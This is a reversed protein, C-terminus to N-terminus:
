GGSGRSTTTSRTPCPPILVVRKAMLGRAWAPCTQGSPSNRGTGIGAHVRIDRAHFRVGNEAIELVRMQGAGFLPLLGIQQRLQITSRARCSCSWFSSDLMWAISIAKRMCNVACIVERRTRGCLFEVALALEDFARSRAGTQFAHMTCRGMGDTAVIDRPVCAVSM